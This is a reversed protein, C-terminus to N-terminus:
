QASWKRALEALVPGLHPGYADQYRAGTTSDLSAGFSQKKASDFRVVDPGTLVLTAGANVADFLSSVVRLNEPELLWGQLFMEAAPPPETDRLQLAVGIPCEAAHSPLADGCLTCDNGMVRQFVEGIPLTPLEGSYHRAIHTPLDTNELLEGCRQCPTLLTAVLPKATTQM